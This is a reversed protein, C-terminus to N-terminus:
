KKETVTQDTDKKKKTDELPIKKTTEMIVSSSCKRNIVIDRFPYSLQIKFDHEKINGARKTILPM